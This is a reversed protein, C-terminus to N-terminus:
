RVGPGFLRDTMLPGTGPPVEVHGACQPVPLRAAAACFKCCALMSICPRNREDIALNGIVLYQVLFAQLKDLMVGVRNELFDANFKTIKRLRKGQELIRAGIHFAFTHAEGAAQAPRDNLFRRRGLVRLMCSIGLAVNNAAAFPRDQHRRVTRRKDAVQILAPTVRRDLIEAVEHFQRVHTGAQVVRTARNALRDVNRDVLTVEVHHVAM